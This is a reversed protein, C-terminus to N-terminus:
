ECADATDSTSIARNGEFTLQRITTRAGPTVQVLARQVGSRSNDLTVDVRPRLYGEESLHARTASELDQALLEPLLADNWANKLIEALRASSPYGIVELETRPGRLIRYDLTVERRKSTADGVKRTPAVHVAYYGRDYYLRQVRDRDRSWERFDFRDGERLELADRVESPSFGPDGSVTIGAVVDPVKEVRVVAPRLSSGPGFTIEQRFEVTNEEGESSSLRVEYGPRPRYIIVWTLESDDLNESLVLEFRQGFRKSVTLRTSPEVDSSVLELDDSSGVRVSDLGVFQGAFGLVDGSVAGVAFADSNATEGTLGATQGTVVLSQLDRDSLPPNSSLSTEIADAPGSLRLTVDYDGIRTEGFVNLRPVLGQEPTFVIASERLRYSRGSVRIRGDDVIAISGALGADSMTGTLRLDPVMDVNGVSNELTLPGNSQLTVDLTTDGLWQPLARRKDSSARTLASVIRVMATAPETYPDATITATGSLAARGSQNRWTLDANLESRLGRPIELFVNRASITLPSAQATGRRTVTGNLSVDGGNVQGRLAAAAVTEGTVELRGTWGALSVRGEPLILSADTLEITGEYQPSDIPGAIRIDFAARGAGRGPLFVDVLGLSTAGSVRMDSHNPPGLGITGSAALAGSPLKWDFQEIHIRGKELRLRTPAQQAIPFQGASIALTTAVITGDVANPEFATARLDLALRVEGSLSRARPPRSGAREPAKEELYTVQAFADGSISALDAGGRISLDVKLPGEVSLRDRSAPPLYELVDEVRGDLNVAIGEAPTDRTAGWSGAARVSLGGLRLQVPELALRSGDLSLRAPQVLSLPQGRVQGDLARVEMTVDSLSRTDLNGSARGSASLAATSGAVTEPNVGLLTLAQVVDAGNLTVQATWPRPSELTVSGTAEAGFRPAGLELRVQGQAAHARAVVAGADRGSLRVSDATLSVEGSPRLVSGELRMDVSVSELDADAVSPDDSAPSWLRRLTVRLGRGEVTTTSLARERINYRGDVRLQGNRQSLRVDHVLLEDDVVEVDGALSEFHLGNAFLEEGTLRASVRPRDLRGSWSGKAAISGTPRWDAPVIPALRGPGDIRVDFEGTSEMRAFGISGRMELHGAPTDVALPKLVMQRRDAHVAGAVQIADVDGASVDSASVLLDVVPEGISGAVTGRATVHGSRVVDVVAPVPIVSERLQRLLAAVDQSSVDVVGYLRSRRLEAGHLVTTLRLEALTEGALAHRYQLRWRGAKGAVTLSGGGPRRLNVHLDGALTGIAPRPGPWSLNATGSVPLAPLRSPDLNLRSALARLRPLSWEGALLSRGDGDRLAIRGRGNFVGEVSRLVCTEIVISDVSAHGTADLRGDSLAGVAFERARLDFTLRPDTLVGAISGSLEVRGRAPPSRDWWKRLESLDITSRYKLDYGGSEGFMLAGDLRLDGSNSEAVLSRIVLAESGITVDATVRDLVGAVSEAELRIGRDAHIEGVLRGQVDGRLSASLGQVTLRLSSATSVTADLNVVDLRGVIIVPRSDTRTTHPVRSAPMRSGAIWSVSPDVIEIRDFALAGRLAATALDLNVRKAVVTASEPVAGTALRVDHLTFSLSRLAFEVRGASFDIDYRDSLLVAIRDVLYRTSWPLALVFLSVLVALGCVTWVIWRRARSLFRMLHRTPATSSQGTLVIRVAIMGGQLHKMVRRTNVANSRTAADTAGEARCVVGWSASWKM